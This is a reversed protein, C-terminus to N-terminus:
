SLQFGKSSPENNSQIAGTILPFVSMAFNAICEVIGFATGLNKEKVLLPVCPLVLTAFGSYCLGLLVMPFFTINSCSHDECRLFLLLLHTILITIFTLIIMIFKSLNSLSRLYLGLLPVVLLPVLFVLSLSM